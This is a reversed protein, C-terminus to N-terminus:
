TLKMVSWFIIRGDGVKRLIVKIKVSQKGVVEVLSWYEVKKKPSKKKRSIKVKKRKYKNIEKAKKIVPIILPILQLKYIQEKVTREKGVVDYRLHHFGDSTFYIYEKLCPCYIKKLKKYGKERKKTLKKCYNATM